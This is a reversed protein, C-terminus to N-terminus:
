LCFSYVCFEISNKSRMGLVVSGIVTSRTRPRGRSSLDFRSTCSGIRERPSPEGGQKTAADNTEDEKEKEKTVADTDTLKVKPLSTESIEEKSGKSDKEEAEEERIVGLASGEDVEDDIKKELEAIKEDDTKAASEDGGEPKDVEQPKEEEAASRKETETAEAETAVSASATDPRVEEFIEM